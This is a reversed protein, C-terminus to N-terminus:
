KRQNDTSGASFNTDLFVLLSPKGKCLANRITPNLTYANPKLKM